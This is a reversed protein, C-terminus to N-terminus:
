SSIPVIADSTIAVIYNYNNVLYSTDLSLFLSVTDLDSIRESM